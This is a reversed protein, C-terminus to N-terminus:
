YLIEVRRNLRWSSEDHGTAVPKEEGYSTTKIRDAAVGLTRMMREVAQARREGL